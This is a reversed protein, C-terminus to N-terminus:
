GGKAARMLEAMTAGKVLRAQAVRDEVSDEVLIRHVVPQKGVGRAGGLRAEFQLIHEFNFTEGFWLTNCGGEAINLGHGMSAPHGCLLRVQGKKWRDLAGKEDVHTAFKFRKKIREFDHIFNYGLLLPQGALGLLVDELADLKLNHVDVVRKDETYVAGNCFQRLKMSAAGESFAAFDEGDTELVFEAELTEYKERLADPLRVRVDNYITEPIDLYDKAEFSLVYPKVKRQIAKGMGPKLTYKRSYENYTFFTNRFDTLTRGLCAGGDLLEFQGYLDALGNTAPTGTLLTVYEARKALFKAAKNRNSGQQGGSKYLSSEDFVIWQWPTRTKWKRKNADVLRTMAEVSLITIDEGGSTANFRELESASGTFAQYTLRKPFWKSVEEPWTMEAVRKPAVVLVRGVQWAHTYIALLTSLSKGLGMEVWLACRKKDVIFEAARRQYERPQLSM